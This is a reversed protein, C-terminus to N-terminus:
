HTTSAVNSHASTIDLGLALFSFLWEGDEGTVEIRFDGSGVLIEPSDKLVAGAFKVGEIKDAEVDNLLTGEADAIGNAVHFCYRPM